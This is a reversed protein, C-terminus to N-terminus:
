AVGYIVRRMSSKIDHDLTDLLEKRSRWRRGSRYRRYGSHLVAMFKVFGRRKIVVRSLMAGNTFPPWKYNWKARRM